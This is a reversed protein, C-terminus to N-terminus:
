AGLKKKLLYHGATIGIAIGGASSVLLWWWPVAGTAGSKEEGCAPCSAPDIFGQDACSTGDTTPCASPLIYGQSEPTPPTPAAPCIGCASNTLVGAAVPHQAMWSQAAMCAQKQQATLPSSLLSYAPNVLGLGALLWQPQQPAHRYRVKRMSAPGFMAGMVPTPTEEVYM